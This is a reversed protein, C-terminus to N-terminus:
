SSLGAKFDAIYDMVDVTARWGLEAARTPDNESELRGSYGDVFTVPGGFAAAIELVSYSKPNGLSFGDGWGREGVLAIGRALDKVYTFARRQEGNGVITLPEGRKYQNEFKAILTAQKGEAVERPGFANYFYCIAYPLQYWEGYDNILDVNTAKTFSYPNQHRGNGEIAFKTSSGAYVLKGVKRTRCFEAVAFTGTINMDYVKDIDDFSSAIRAYEGLHFVIDPTEPIHEVIHKTHGERYEAGPIHNERRGNFYNDLSIVRNGPDAVLLEILHSGVHGAGGTVLITKNNM